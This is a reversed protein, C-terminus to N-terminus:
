FTIKFFLIISITNIFRSFFSIGNPKLNCPPESKEIGNDIICTFLIKIRKLDHLKYKFYNKIFTHVHM